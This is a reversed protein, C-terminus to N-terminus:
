ISLKCILPTTVTSTTFIKMTYVHAAKGKPPIVGADVHIYDQEV